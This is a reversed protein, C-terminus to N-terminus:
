RAFGYLVGGKEIQILAMDIAYEMKVECLRGNLYVLADEGCNSCLTTGEEAVTNCSACVLQEERRSVVELTYGNERAQEKCNEIAQTDFDSSEIEGICATHFQRASRIQMSAGIFQTFILVSLIVLFVTVFSEIMQKM